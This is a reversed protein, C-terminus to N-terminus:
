TFDELAEELLSVLFISKPPSNLHYGKKCDYEKTDENLANHPCELSVM